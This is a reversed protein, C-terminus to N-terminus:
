GQLLVDFGHNFLLRTSSETTSCSLSQNAEDIIHIHWIDILITGLLWDLQQSLNNIISTNEVSFLQFLPFEELVQEEETGQIM